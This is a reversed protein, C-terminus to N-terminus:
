LRTLPSSVTVAQPHLKAGMRRPDLLLFLNLSERKRDASGQADLNRDGGRIQGTGAGAQRIRHTPMPPASLTAQRCCCRTRMSATAGLEEVLRILVQFGIKAAHRGAAHAHRPYAMGSPWDHLGQTLDSAGLTPRLCDARAIESTLM